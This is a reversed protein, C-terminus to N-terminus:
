VPFGEAIVSDVEVDIVRQTYPAALYRAKLERVVAALFADPLDKGLWLKLLDASSIPGLLHMSKVLRPEREGDITAIFESLTEVTLDLNDGCVHSKAEIEARETDPANWPAFPDSESTGAPYNSM